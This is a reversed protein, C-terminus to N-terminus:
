ARTCSWARATRGRRQVSEVLPLETLAAVLAPPDTATAIVDLDKVADAQRRLSGAVEVREAGPDRACPASSRSPPGAARAVAARAAGAHRRAGAALAELLKEEM